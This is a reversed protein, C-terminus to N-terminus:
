RAADDGDEVVAAAISTVPVIQHDNTLVHTRSSENATPTSDPVRSFRSETTAKSALSFLLHELAGEKSPGTSM